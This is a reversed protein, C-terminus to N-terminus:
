KAGAILWAVQSSLQVVLPIPSQSDVSLHQTIM